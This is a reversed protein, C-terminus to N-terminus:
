FRRLKDRSKFSIRVFKGWTRIYELHEKLSKLRLITKRFWFIQLSFYSYFPNDLKDIKRLNYNQVKEIRLNKKSTKSRDSIKFSHGPCKDYTYIGQLQVNIHELRVFAFEYVAWLNKEMESSSCRKGAIEAICNLSSSPIEYM